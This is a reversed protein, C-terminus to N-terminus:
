SEDSGGQMQYGLARPMRCTQVCAPDGGCLDCILPSTRGEGFQVGGFPCAPQCARCGICADEDLVINGLEPDVSLASVPCAAVCFRGDCQICVRPIFRGKDEDREIRIRSLALSFAGGHESPCTLVCSECGTCQEPNVNLRKM